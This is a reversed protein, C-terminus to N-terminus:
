KCSFAGFMLTFFMLVGATAAGLATWLLTSKDTGTLKTGAFINLKNTYFIATILLAIFAVGFFIAIILTTSM